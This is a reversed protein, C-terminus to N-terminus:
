IMIQINKCLLIYYIMLYWIYICLIHISRIYYIIHIIHKYIRKCYAHRQLLEGDDWRRCRVAGGGMPLARSVSIGFRRCSPSSTQYGVAQPGIKKTLFMASFPPFAHHFHIIMPIRPTNLIHVIRYQICVICVRIWDYEYETHIVDIWM